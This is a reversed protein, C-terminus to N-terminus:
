RPAEYTACFSRAFAVSVNVSRLKGCRKAVVSLRGSGSRLAAAAVQWVAPTGASQSSAHTISTPNVPSGANALSSAAAGAIVVGALTLALGVGTGVGSAYDTWDHRRAPM